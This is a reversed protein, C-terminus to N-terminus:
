PCLLFIHFIHPSRSKNDIPLAPHQQDLMSISAQVPFQRSPSASGQGSRASILSHPKQGNSAKGRGILSQVTCRIWSAAAPLLNPNGVVM